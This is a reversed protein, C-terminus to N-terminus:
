LRIEDGRLLRADKNGEAMKRALERRTDAVAKSQGDTKVPKLVNFEKWPTLEHETAARGSNRHM